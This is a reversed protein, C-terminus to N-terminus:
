GGPKTSRSHRGIAPWGTAAYAILTQKMLADIRARRVM